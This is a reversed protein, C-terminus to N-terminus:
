VRVGRSRLAEVIQDHSEFQVGDMGAQKAGEIYAAIDDTFFCEAGKVCKEMRDKSTRLNEMYSLTLAPM